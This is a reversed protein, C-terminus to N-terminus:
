EPAPEPGDPITPADPVSPQTPTRSTIPALFEAVYAPMIGTSYIVLHADSLEDFSFMPLTLPDLVINMTNDTVDFSDAVFMDAHWTWNTGDYEIKGDDSSKESGGFNFPIILFYLVDELYEVPYPFEIKITLRSDKVEWTEFQSEIYSSVDFAGAKNRPAYPKLLLREINDLDALTKTMDYVWQLQIGSSLITVIPGYEQWTATGIVAIMMVNGSILVQYTFPSPPPPAPPEPAPPPRVVWAQATGDYYVEVHLEKSVTGDKYDVDFRYELRVFDNINYEVQVGIYYPNQDTPLIYQSIASISNAVNITGQENKPLYPKLGNLLPDLGGGGGGAASIKGNAFTFGTGLDACSIVQTSDIATLSETNLIRNGANVSTLQLNPGVTLIREYSGNIGVTLNPNASTITQIGTGAGGAEIADVRDELDDLRVKIM